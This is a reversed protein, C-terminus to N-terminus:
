PKSIMWSQGPVRACSNAFVDTINPTDPGPNDLCRPYIRMDENRLVVRDNWQVIEKADPKAALQKNLDDIKSELATVAQNLCAIQAAADGQSCDAALVPAPLLAAAYFATCAILFGLRIRM